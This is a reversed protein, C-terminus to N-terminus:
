TVTLDMLTLFVLYLISLGLLNSMSMLDLKFDHFYLLQMM